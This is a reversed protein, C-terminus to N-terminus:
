AKVTSAWRRSPASSPLTRTETGAQIRNATTNDFLYRVLLHQAETGIGQSRHEEFLAIGIEWNGHTRAKWDVWGVCTGDELAIALFRNDGGLLGEEAWRREIEKARAARFGFWQFEGPADPDVLLRCVLSLDEEEVPRLIM